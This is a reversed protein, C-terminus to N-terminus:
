STKRAICFYGLPCPHLRKIKKPVLRDLIIALSYIPIKIINFLFFKNILSTAATFREGFPIIKIEKFGANILLKHLGESTFRHYDHPEPSENYIFPSSFFLTGNEKLFRYCEKITKEPSELIYITNFLFITEYQNKLSFPENLDITIDPAQSAQDAKIISINRQKLYSYYSPQKGAALDLIEGKLNQCHQYIQWNFLIRYLTKNMLIQKVLDLFHNM